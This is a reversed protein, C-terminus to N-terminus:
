DLKNKFHNVLFVNRANNKVNILVFLLSMLNVKIFFVNKDVIRDKIRDQTTMVYSLSEILTNTANITLNILTLVLRRKLFEQGFKM